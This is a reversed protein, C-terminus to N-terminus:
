RAWFLNEVFAMKCAMCQGNSDTKNTPGGLFLHKDGDCVRDADTWRFLSRIQGSLSRHWRSLMGTPCELYLFSPLFNKNICFPSGLSSRLLLTGKGLPSTTVPPQAREHDDNSTLM